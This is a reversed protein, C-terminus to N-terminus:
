FRSLPNLAAAGAVGGGPIATSGIVIPMGTVGCGGALFVDQLAGADVGFPPQGPHETVTTLTAAAGEGGVGSGRALRTSFTLSDIQKRM